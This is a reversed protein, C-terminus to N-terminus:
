LRIAVYTQHHTGSRQRAPNLPEVTEYDTEGDKEVRRFFAYLGHKPDTEVGLHPRLHGEPTSAKGSAIPQSDSPVEPLISAFARTQTSAALLSGCGSVAPRALTRLLTSSVLSPLMRTLTSGTGSRFCRQSLKLGFWFGLRRSVILKPAQQKDSAQPPSSHWWM